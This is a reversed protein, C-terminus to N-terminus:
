RQQLEMANQSGNQGDLKKLGDEYKIRSFYLLKEQIQILIKHELLYPLSSEEPNDRQWGTATYFDEVCEYIEISEKALKIKETETEQLRVVFERELLELFTCKVLINEIM